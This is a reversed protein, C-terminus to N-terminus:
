AKFYPQTKIYKSCLKYHVSVRTMLCLNHKEEADDDGSFEGQGLNRRAVWAASGCSAKRLSVDRDRDAM